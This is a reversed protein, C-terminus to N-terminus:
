VDADNPRYAGPDVGLKDLEAYLSARGGGALRAARTCNGGARVLLRAFYARGFAGRAM